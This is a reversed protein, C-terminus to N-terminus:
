QYCCSSSRGSCRVVSGYASSNICSVFVSFISFEEDIVVVAVVLMVVEVVVLVISSNIAVIAVVM